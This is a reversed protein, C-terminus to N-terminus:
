EAENMKPALYYRIHGIDGVKYEVLMPVETSVCLTVSKALPTAKTFNQLYKLSFTLSCAQNLEIVTEQDEEEDISGQGPKLLISGHGIDGQASFKVGEKTCDIVVPDSSFVLKLSFPWTEASANSNLRLCKSPLMTNQKLFAWISPM